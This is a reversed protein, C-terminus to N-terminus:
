RTSEGKPVVIDEHVDLLIKLANRARVRTIDEPGELLTPSTKKVSKNISSYPFSSQLTEYAVLTVGFQPSSRLVRAIGGKFLAGAGEEALIKTFADINGSYTTYGKKAESQLRTKIVDAPTTLYAAPMGAIGAATLTQMFSLTKGNEGERFLDKKLHAYATFYIASFPVDRLLCASAGKYLGLLGLQKIIHVAGRPADGTVKAMEGQMQLRIKVIELPNTFVVQSAGAIAGALVEWYLKIKGTDPDRAKGRVLDNMTLKIAKEPAVGILQPPLGRYFGKFGENKYVKKACDIGNKYLLEGVVKSRQNQMRTKVLDIPYVATAGIGGAIGGLVFNYCSHLFDELAGKGPVVETGVHMDSPREWTPAILQEFDKWALRTDGMGMGAFHFIIGAELPTFNIYRTSQAASNLFDGKDIRGDKSKSIADKVTHEVSDMGVIINHFAIVESYSIKNGASLTCLTTLRSLLPDSLKHRALEKIIKAFEDPKIYGTKDKDFYHFAQRMREGPLGKMMQAFQAYDLVHVGDKKGLYLTVWPSDFNFPISEKSMTAKFVEQFEDFTVLGNNDTDFWRFAIEYPADPRKLITEFVTFDDWSVRGRKNIDAVKFLVAYQDRKIKDADERAAITNVFAEQDLYKDGTVPDTKANLEFNRKWKALEASASSPRGATTTKITTGLRSAVNSASSAIASSSGKSSGSSSSTGADMPQQEPADCRMPPRFLALSVFM